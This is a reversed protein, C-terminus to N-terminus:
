PSSPINGSTNGAMLSSKKSDIVEVLRDVLDALATDSKIFLGEIELDVIKVTDKTLSTRNTLVIVPIAKAVDIEKIKAVMEYGDMEAMMVDTVILDFDYNGEKLKELGDVGSVGRTCVAGEAILKRIFMDGIFHDDEVLLIKKGELKM